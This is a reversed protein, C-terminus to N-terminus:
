LRHRSNRLQMCMGFSRRGHVSMFWLRFKRSLQCLKCMSDDDDNLLSYHTFLHYTCQLIQSFGITCNVQFLFAADSAVSTDFPVSPFLQASSVSSQGALNFSGSNQNITSCSTPYANSSESLYLISSAALNFGGNGFPVMVLGGAGVCTGSLSFGTIPDSVIMSRTAQKDTM